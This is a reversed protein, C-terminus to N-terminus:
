APCLSCDGVNKITRSGPACLKRMCTTWGSWRGVPWEHRAVFSREPADVKLVAENHASPLGCGLQKAVFDAREEEETGRELQLSEASGSQACLWKWM